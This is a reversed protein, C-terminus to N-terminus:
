LEIKQQQWLITAGVVAAPMAAFNLVPIIMLLTAGVGFGLATMPIKRMQQKQQQFLLGRNGLPYDSYELALFWASFLFWALPAILNIGPIIFLLLLPLAHLLFYFLKRMESLTAPVITAAISQEIDPPRNGSLLEEVRASLQSNFPAAILNAIMTFTYLTLLLISLAFLPWLLWRIFSYWSNEPLMWNLLTEFQTYGVWGILSFVLINVCLPIFLYRKLGPKILYRLGQFSYGFGQLPNNRM